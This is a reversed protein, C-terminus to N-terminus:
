IGQRQLNLRVVAADGQRDEGPEARRRRFLGADIGFARQDRREAFRAARHQELSLRHRLPIAPRAHRLDPAGFPGELFQRRPRRGRPRRSEDPRGADQHRAAHRRAHLLGRQRAARRHLRLERVARPVRGSRDGFEVGHRHSLRVHHRGQARDRGSLHRRGHRQRRGQEARHAASQRRHAQRHAQGLLRGEVDTPGGPAFNILLTLRKGQYFPEEARATTAAFALAAAIIVHLMRQMANDDAKASSSAISWRQATRRSTPM